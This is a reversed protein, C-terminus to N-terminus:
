DDELVRLGGMEPLLSLVAFTTFYFRGGTSNWGAAGANPSFKVADAVVTSSTNVNLITVSGTVGDFDYTGLQNWQGGGTTQNVFM